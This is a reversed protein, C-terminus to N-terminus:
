LNLVVLPLSFRIAIIILTKSFYLFKNDDTNLFVQEAFYMFLTHCNQLWRPFGFVQASRIECTVLKPKSRSPVADTSAGM